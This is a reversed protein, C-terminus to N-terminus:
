PTSVQWHSCQRSQSLWLWHGSVPRLEGRGQVCSQVDGPVDVDDGEELNDDEIHIDTDVDLTDKM